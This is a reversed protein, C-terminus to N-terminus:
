FTAMLLFTGERMYVLGPTGALCARWLAAGVNEQVNLLVPPGEKM